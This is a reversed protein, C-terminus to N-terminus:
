YQGAPITKAGAVHSAVQAANQTFMETRGCSTCIVLNMTWCLGGLHKEQDYYVSVDPLFHFNAGGCVCPKLPYSM